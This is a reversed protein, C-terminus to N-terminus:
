IIEKCLLELYEDREEPNIVSVIEFIRSDDAKVVRDDPTVTSTYRITIKYTVEASIQQAHLLERGRLPEIAAWVTSDTSWSDTAEGYDNQSTTNSKLYVKHRLKGIQM